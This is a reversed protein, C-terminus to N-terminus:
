RKRRRIITEAAPPSKYFSIRKGYEAILLAEARGDDKVRATQSVCCPYLEQARIRAANKDKKGQMIEKKWAQPTVKTLPLALAAIIGEWLGCGYGFRFMSTSGQGPMAHVDEIFVKVYPDGCFPRLLEAMQFPLYDNKSKGGKKTTMMVPTDHLHITRDNYIIAVAGSLGPDIGIITM